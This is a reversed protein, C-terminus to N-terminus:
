VKFVQWGLRAAIDRLLAKVEKPLFFGYQNVLAIARRELEDAPQMECAGSFRQSCNCTRSMYRECEEFKM